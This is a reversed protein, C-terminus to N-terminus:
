ILGGILKVAGKLGEPLTAKASKPRQSPLNETYMEKLEVDGKRDIKVNVYEQDIFDVAVFSKLEDPYKPQIKLHHVM